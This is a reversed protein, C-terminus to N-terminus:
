GSGNSKEDIDRELSRDVQADAHDVKGQHEPPRGVVRQEQGDTASSADLKRVRRFLHGFSLNECSGAEFLHLRQAEWVRKRLLV